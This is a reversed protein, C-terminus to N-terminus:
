ILKSDSVSQRARGRAMIGHKLRAGADAHVLTGQARLKQKSFRFAQERLGKRITFHCSGVSYM